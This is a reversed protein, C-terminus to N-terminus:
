ILEMQYPAANAHAVAGWQKAIAAAMGPFFRSRDAARQPGPSARHVSERALEGTLSGTPKLKPLNKLWFCTRKKENDLGHPDDGFQWPQVSQSLEQFNRILKKAHKHMVPNEVAVHPVTANWLDSFLEAGDRLEQWMEDKTRGEPPVSLWRVGSNCLRTCPPHAVILLDWQEMKLVNRADDQIHRNSPTEARKLDCSWADHGEALFADRVIGSCECAVLVKAM